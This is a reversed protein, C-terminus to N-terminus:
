AHVRGKEEGARDHADEARRPLPAPSTGEQDVCHKAASVAEGQSAYEGRIRAVPADGGREQGRGLEVVSVVWVGSLLQATHIRHNKYVGSGKLDM